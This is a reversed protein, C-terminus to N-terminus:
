TSHNRLFVINEMPINVANSFKKAREITMKEPNKELFIYASRSVGISNAVSEQTLNRYRRAEAMTFQM